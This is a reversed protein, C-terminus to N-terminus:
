LENNRKKISNIVNDLKCLNMLSDKREKMYKYNYEVDGTYRTSIGTNKFILGYGAEDEPNYDDLLFKYGIVDAPNCDDLLFADLDDRECRLKMFTKYADGSADPSLTKSEPPCVDHMFIVGNPTLAELSNILDRYVQEAEHYGDILILDFLDTNTKFFDDSTQLRLDHTNNKIYNSNFDPSPDVAVKRKCKIEEHTNGNAYGIELFSTLNLEDVLENMIQRARKM